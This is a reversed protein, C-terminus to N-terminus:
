PDNLKEFYEDKLEQSMFEQYPELQFAKMVGYRKNPDSKGAIKTLHEFAKEEEEILNPCLM